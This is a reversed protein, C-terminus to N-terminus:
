RINLLVQAALLSEVATILNTPSGLIFDSTIILVQTRNLPKAVSQVNILSRKLIFKSIDLLVQAVTLPKAVYRVNILNRALISENINDLILAM